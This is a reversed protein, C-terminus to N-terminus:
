IISLPRHEVSFVLNPRAIIILIIQRNIKQYEYPVTSIIGYRCGAEWTM